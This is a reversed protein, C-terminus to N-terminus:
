NGGIMLSIVFSFLAGKAFGNLGQKKDKIRQAVLKELDEDSVENIDIGQKTLLEEVEQFAQEKLLTDLSKKGQTYLNNIM